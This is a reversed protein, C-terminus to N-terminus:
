LLPMTLDRGTRFYPYRLTHEEGLGKKEGERRKYMQKKNEEQIRPERALKGCISRKIIHNACIRYM